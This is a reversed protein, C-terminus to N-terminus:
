SHDGMFMALALVCWEVLKLHVGHLNLRNTRTGKQFVISMYIYKIYTIYWGLYQNRMRPHALSWRWECLQSALLRLVITATSVAPNCIYLYIQVHIPVVYFWFMYCIYANSMWGQSADFYTKKFIHDSPFWIHPGFVSGQKQLAQVVAQTVQVCCM